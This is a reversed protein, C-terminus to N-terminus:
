DCLVTTTSVLSLAKVKVNIAVSSLALLEPSAM